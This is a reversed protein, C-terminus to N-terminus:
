GTGKKKEEGSVSSGASIDGVLHSGANIVAGPADGYINVDGVTPVPMGNGLSAQGAGTLRITTRGDDIVEILGQGELYQVTEATEAESIQLARRVQETFAYGLPLTSVARAKRLFRLAAEESRTIKLEEAKDLGRDLIYVHSGNHNVYGLAQLAVIARRSEDPSFGVESGFGRKEHGVGATWQSKEALYLLLSNQRDVPGM